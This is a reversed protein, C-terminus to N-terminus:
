AAARTALAPAALAVPPDTYVFPHRFADLADEPAVRFERTAGAQLDLVTVKLRDDTRWLLSIRLGGSDRSDVELWTIDRTTM